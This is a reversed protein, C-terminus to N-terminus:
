GWAKALASRTLHNMGEHPNNIGGPYYATGSWQIKGSESDIGRLSVVLNYLVYNNGREGTSNKDTDEGQQKSLHTELFIVQQAGLLKGVQLLRAHDKATQTFTINQEQLIQDLKAREVVRYGRKLLWTRATDVAGPHNGWVVLRAKEDPLVDHFGDSVPLIPDISACAVLLLSLILISVSNM